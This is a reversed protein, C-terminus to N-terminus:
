TTRRCRCRCVPWGRIPLAIIGKASVTWMRGLGGVALSVFRYDGLRQFTGEFGFGLNLVYLGLLLIAVLQWVQWRRSILMKPESLESKHNQNSADKKSFFWVLWIAPWLVFLVVWTSKTLEALGLAVGAMFAESWGPQRLWRWFAYGATVGMAAAGADPT